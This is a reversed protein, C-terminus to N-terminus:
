ARGWLLAETWGVGPAAPDKPAPRDTQEEWVWELTQRTALGAITLCGLVAANHLIKNM